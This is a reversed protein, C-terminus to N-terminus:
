LRGGRRHRRGLGQGCGTRGPWGDIGGSRHRRAGTPSTMDWGARWPAMPLARRRGEVLVLGLPARDWLSLLDATSDKGALAMPQSSALDPASRARSEAPVTGTNGDVDTLSLVWLVRKAGDLPHVAVRLRRGDPDADFPFVEHGQNGAAVSRLLLSVGSQAGPIRGLFREPTPAQGARSRSLRLYAPNTLVLDEGREVLAVADSTAALLTRALDDNRREEGSLLRVGATFLSFVGIAALGALLATVISGGTGQALSATLGGVFAAGRRVMAHLGVLPPPHPRRVRRREAGTESAM